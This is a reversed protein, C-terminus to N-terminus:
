RGVYVTPSTNQNHGRSRYKVTDYEFEFSMDISSIWM